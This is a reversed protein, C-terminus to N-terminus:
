KGEELSPFPEAHMQKFSDWNSVSILDDPFLFRANEMHRCELFYFLLTTTGMQHEFSQHNDLRVQHVRHLPDQGSRVSPPLKDLLAQIVPGSVEAKIPQRLKQGDYYHPAANPLEADEVVPLLLFAYDTQSTRTNLNDVIDRITPLDAGMPNEQCRAVLAEWSNPAEDKPQIIDKGM